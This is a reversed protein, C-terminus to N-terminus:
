YRYHSHFLQYPVLLPVISASSFVRLETAGQSQRALARSDFPLFAPKGPQLLDKAVAWRAESSDCLDDNVALVRPTLMLDDLTSDSLRWLSM